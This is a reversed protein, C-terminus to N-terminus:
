GFIYSIHKLLLFEFFFKMGIFLFRRFIPWGTYKARICAAIQNSVVFYGLGEVLDVEDLQSGLVKM